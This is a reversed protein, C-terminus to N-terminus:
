STLSLLDRGGVCVCVYMEGEMLEVLDGGQLEEVMGLESFDDLRRKRHWASTCTRYCSEPRELLLQSLDHVTDRTSMQHHTPPMFILSLLMYISFLCLSAFFFLHFNPNCNSFKM